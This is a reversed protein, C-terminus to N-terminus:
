IVNKSKQLIKQTIYEYGDNTPYRGQIIYNKLLEINVFIIKNENCISELKTNAYKILENNNIVDYFGLFIIKDKNYKRILIFLKEIDYLLEDTYEFLNISNKSKYILDNMGISITILNAKVLLNQMNYEENQFKIKKNYNIDNILDSVRYDDFNSYNIYKNLKDGYHKSINISYSNNVVNNNNIGFALYDGLSLYYIKESKNFYYILFVALSILITFIIKKM